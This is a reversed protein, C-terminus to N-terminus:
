INVRLIFSKSTRRNETSFHSCRRAARGFNVWSGMGGGPDHIEGLLSWMKHLCWIEASGKEDSYSKMNVSIQLWCFWHEPHLHRKVGNRSEIQYKESAGLTPGGLLVKSLFRISFFPEQLPAM